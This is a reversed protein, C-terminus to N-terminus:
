KKKTKTALKQEVLMENICIDGVYLRGLVRNFTLIKSIDNNIVPVELVCTKNLTQEEILIKARKDNESGDVSWCDLLRVHLKLPVTVIVTDGDIAREVSCELVVKTDPPKASSFYALTFLTAILIVPLTYVKKIM